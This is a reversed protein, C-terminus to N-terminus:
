SAGPLFTPLRVTFASGEGPRSKVDIHGKHAHVIARVLSLGLGLGPQSRSKDGRHLRDWIKPIEEPSIGPGDDKVALVIGQEEQRSKIFVHGGPSNYKIANDLLNALVQGLRSRDATIVGDKPCDVSISINKEETAYEYLEVVEEVLTLVSITEFHLRMTGTEAESVDMLCELLKLIRDSEEISNVLAEQLPERGSGAQLAAEAIVRLRTIPTRLDHAVNDLAEKMGRILTEIRGLMRNFLKTLEDLEDGSGSAPVRADIRGTEVISRTTQILNRAPRLARFSFFTGGALAILMMPITVAVITNRYNELIEERGEVTRGVELVYGNPLKASTLELVDGDGRATVYQWAGEPAQHSLSEVDFTKWLRPNNLFVVENASNIVRVFFATRRSPRRRVEAVQEIGEVGSQQALSALENLKVQIAKRNDRLSSSLFVYSVISVALSSLVFIVFYWVALRFGLSRRIRDLFKSPM